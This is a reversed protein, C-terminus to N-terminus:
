SLHVPKGSGANIIHRVAEGDSYAGVKRESNLADVRLANGPVKTCIV